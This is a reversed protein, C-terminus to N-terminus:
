LFKIVGLGCRQFCLGHGDDILWSHVCRCCGRHRWRPGEFLLWCQSMMFNAIILLFFGLKRYVRLFTGRMHLATLSSATLLFYIELLTAINHLLYIWRTLVSSCTGSQATEGIAIALLRAHIAIATRHRRLMTVAARVSGEFRVLLEVMLKLQRQSVM